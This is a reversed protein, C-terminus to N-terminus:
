QLHIDLKGDTHGCEGHSWTLFSVFVLRFFGSPMPQCAWLSTATCWAESGFSRDLYPETQHTM